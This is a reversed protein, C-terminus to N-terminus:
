RPRLGLVKRAMDGNARRSRYQNRSTAPHRCARRLGGLLGDRFSKRKAKRDAEAKANAEADTEPDADAKRNTRTDTRAIHEASIRANTRRQSRWNWKAKTGDRVARIRSPKGSAAPETTETPETEANM